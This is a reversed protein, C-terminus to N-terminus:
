MIPHSRSSSNEQGITYSLFVFGIISRCEFLLRAILTFEKIRVSIKLRDVENKHRLFKVFNRLNTILLVPFTHMIKVVYNSTRVESMERVAVFHIVTVRVTVNVPIGKFM